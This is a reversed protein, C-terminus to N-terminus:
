RRMRQLRTMYHEATENRFDERPKEQQKKQLQRRQEQLLDLEAQAKQEELKELATKRKGFIKIM